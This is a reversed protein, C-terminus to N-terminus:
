VFELNSVANGYGQIQSAGILPCSGFYAAPYSQYGICPLPTIAMMVPMSIVAVFGSIGILTALIATRRFRSKTKETEKIEMIQIHYGKNIDALLIIDYM